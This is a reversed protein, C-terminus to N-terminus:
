CSPCHQLSSLTIRNLRLFLAPSPMQKCSGQMTTLCPAAVSNTLQKYSVGTFVTPRFGGKFGGGFFGSLQRAEAVDLTVTLACLVALLVAMVKFMIGRSVAVPKFFKERCVSLVSHPNAEKFDNADLSRGAIYRRYALL